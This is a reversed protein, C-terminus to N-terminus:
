KLHINFRGRAAGRTFMYLKLRNMTDVKRQAVKNHAMTSKYSDPYLLNADAFLAAVYRAFDGALGSEIANRTKLASLPLGKLDPCYKVMLHYAEDIKDEVNPRVQPTSRHRKTTKHEDDDVLSLSNAREDRLRELTKENTSIKELVGSNHAPIYSKLLMFLKSMALYSSMETNILSVTEKHNKTYYDRFSTDKILSAIITDRTVQGNLINKDRYRVLKQTDLLPVNGINELSEVIEKLQYKIGEEYLRRPEIMNEKMAEIDERFKDINAVGDNYIELPGSNIYYLEKFFSKSTDIISTINPNDISRIRENLEPTHISTLNIGRTLENRKTIDDSANLLATMYSVYSKYKPHIDGEDVPKSMSMGKQYIVDMNETKPSIYLTRREDAEKKVEQLKEDSTHFLDSRDVLEDAILPPLKKKKSPDIDRHWLAIVAIDRLKDNSLKTAKFEDKFSKGKEEEQDYLRQMFEILLEPKTNNALITEYDNYEYCLNEYRYGRSPSVLQDLNDIYGAVNDDFEDVFNGDILQKELEKTRAETLSIKKTNNEQELLLRKNTMQIDYDRQIVRDVDEREYLTETDVQMAGAVLKMFPYEDAESLLEFRSKKSQPQGPQSQSPRTVHRTPPPEDDGSGDSPYVGLDFMDDMMTVIPQDVHCSDDDDDGDGYNAIFEEIATNPRKMVINNQTHRDIKLM